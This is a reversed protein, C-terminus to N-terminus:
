RTSSRPGETSADWCTRRPCWARRPLGDPGRRRGRCGMLGYLYETEVGPAATWSSAASGRRRSRRRTPGRTSSSTTPRRPAWSSASRGTSSSTTAGGSPSRPPGSSTPAARAARHPMRRRLDRGAAAAERVERAPRRHRPPRHRRVGARRGRRLRLRLHLRADGGGGDGHLDGVWDMGRGGWRSPYRVGMLGRRGAERLFEKPFRVKDEDMDLIMQRPVWRVLDRVEERLAKQEGTLLCDFM